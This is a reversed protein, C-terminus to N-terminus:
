TTRTEIIQHAAENALQQAANHRVLGFESVVEISVFQSRVLLLVEQNHPASWLVAKRGDIQEISRTGAGHGKSQATWLGAGSSVTTLEVRREAGGAETFLCLSARVPGPPVQPALLRRADVVWGTASTVQASTLLRCADLNSSSTSTKEGQATLAVLLGVLLFCGLFPHHRATAM